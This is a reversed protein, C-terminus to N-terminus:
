VVYGGRRGPAQLAQAQLAQLPEKFTRMLDDLPAHTDLYGSGIAIKTIQLLRRRRDSPVVPFAAMRALLKFADSSYPGQIQEPKPWSSEVWVAGAFVQLAAWDIGSLGETAVRAMLDNLDPQVTDQMDGWRENLNTM